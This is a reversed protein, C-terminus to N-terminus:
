IKVATGSINLKGHFHFQFHHFSRGSNFAIGNGASAFRYFQFGTQFNDRRQEYFFAIFHNDIRFFPFINRSALVLYHLDCNKIKEFLINTDFSKKSFFDFDISDRHGIQLALATGGALYFDNKLSKFLPLIAKRKRSLINYFM